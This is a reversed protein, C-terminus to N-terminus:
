LTCWMSYYVEIKAAVKNWMKSLVSTKAPIVNQSELNNINKVIDHM